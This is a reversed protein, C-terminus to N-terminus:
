WIFSASEIDKGRRKGNSTMLTYINIATSKQKNELHGIKKILTNMGRQRTGKPKIRLDSFSVDSSPASALIM